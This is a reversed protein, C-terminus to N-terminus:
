KKAEKKVAFRIHKDQKLTAFPLEAGSQIAEKVAKKNWNYSTKQLVFNTYQLYDEPGAEKNIEVSPQSNRLDIRMMEGPLTDYGHLLMQGKVYAELKEAKKRLANRRKELAAIWQEDITNAEAYWSDIRWKIADVKGKLDGVIEEPNFDEPAMEDDIKQLNNLIERLSDSM